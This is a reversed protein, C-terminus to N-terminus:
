VLIYNLRNFRPLMYCSEEFILRHVQDNHPVRSPFYNDEKYLYECM